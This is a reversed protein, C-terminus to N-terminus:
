ETTIQILPLRKGTVLDLSSNGPNPPCSGADPYCHLAIGIDVRGLAPRTREVYSNM